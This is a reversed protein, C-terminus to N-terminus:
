DTQVETDKSEEHSKHLRLHLAQPKCFLISPKTKETFGKSAPSKQADTHRLGTHGHSQSGKFNTSNLPQPNLHLIQYNGLILPTEWFKWFSLVGLYVM